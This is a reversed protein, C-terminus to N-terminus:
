KKGSWFSELRAKGLMAVGLFMEMPDESFKEHITPSM